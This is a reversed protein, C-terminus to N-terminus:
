LKMKRLKAIKKNLRKAHVGNVFTIKMKGKALFLNAYLFFNGLRMPDKTMGRRWLRATIEEILETSIPMTTKIIM